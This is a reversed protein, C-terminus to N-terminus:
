FVFTGYQWKRKVLIQMLVRKYMRLDSSKTLPSASFMTNQNYKPTNDSVDVAGGSDGLASKMPQLLPKTKWYIGWM